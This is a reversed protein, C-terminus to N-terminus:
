RPRVLRVKIDTTVMGGSREAMIFTTYSLFIESLRPSPIKLCVNLCNSLSVRLFSSWRFGFIVGRTRGFPLLFTHGSAPTMKHFTMFMKRM